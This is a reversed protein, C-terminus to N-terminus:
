VHRNADDMDSYTAYSAHVFQISIFGIAVAVFTAFNTKDKECRLAVRKFRKLKGVVCWSRARDRYLARGFHEHANAANARAPIVLIAHRSRAAARDSSIDYGQDPVVTRPAINRGFRRLKEFM